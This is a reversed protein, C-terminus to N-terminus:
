VVEAVTFISGIVLVLDNEGANQLAAKYAAPVSMYARGKMGFGAATEKLARADLGRPIDAKGFYYSASAPMRRFVPKHDKDKVVGLVIHLKDYQVRNISKFLSTMGAINHASDAIVLPHKKLVQFRGLYGSVKLGSTWAETLTAPDVLNRSLVSLAGMASTVNHKQYFGDLITELRFHRGSDTEVIDFGAGNKGGSLKTVDFLDQAFVINSKMDKAQRIFVPDTIDSHEGIVVPVGKKIIGAKEGAIKTLTNGLFKQHDFSINTILSLVPTIINTSDLRGGLGTEIVAYDVAEESFYQFAMAVTIEFFSPKVKDLINKDNLQNVFNVIYRKPIMKGNVKIRERYSKYHPSTYLGVKFGHAMLASAILHSCTGKGNTGAIHISKFRLHPSGFAEDLYLSNSLDKKFAKAGIRHYMPLQWFLFAEADDYRTFKM